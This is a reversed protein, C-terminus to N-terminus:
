TDCIYLCCYNLDNGAVNGVIMSGGIAQGVSPLIGGTLAGALQNNGFLFSAIYPLVLLSIVGVISISVSTFRRQDESAGVVPTVAAIASNGCVGIGAALLLRQKLDFGFLRGALWTILLVGIFMIVTFLVGKIGVSKVVDWGVTLGLLAIGVEIPWKESWRLGSSLRPSDVFGASAVVIGIIMALSEAGLFPVYSGMLYAFVTLLFVVGAGPLIM